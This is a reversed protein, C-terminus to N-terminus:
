LRPAFVEPKQDSPSLDQIEVIIKCETIPLEGGNESCEHKFTVTTNWYRSPLLDDRRSYRIAFFVNNGEEARATSLRSKDDIRQHYPNFPLPESLTIKEGTEHELWNELLLLVMEIDTEPKLSLTNAYILM